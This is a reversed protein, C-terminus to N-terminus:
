ALAPRGNQGIPNGPEMKPFRRKTMAFVEGEELDETLTSAM